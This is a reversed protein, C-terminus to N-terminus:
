GNCPLSSKKSNSKETPSKEELINIDKYLASQSIEIKGAVEKLAIKGNNGRILEVLKNRRDQPNM